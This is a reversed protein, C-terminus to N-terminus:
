VAKLMDYVIKAYELNNVLNIRELGNVGTRNYNHEYAKEAKKLNREAIILLTEKTM